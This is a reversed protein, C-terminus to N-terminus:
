FEVKISGLFTRPSGVDIRNRGFGNSTPFYNKDLLNDVNLQTTIRSKGVKFEYGAMLNVLTYGPLQFNNESNGEQQSKAVLGAGLKLGQVPGSQFQYTNWISGGHEPVNALRNGTNGSTVRIVKGNLDFVRGTDATIESDIFSYAGIVNWGPLIEGAIDLEFGENMAEGALEFEDNSAGAFDRTVTAVNQKTLRYWALTGTLRGGLLETKIGAEWQQATEPGLAAGGIGSQFANPVGFNQVYNGYLSIEKIPQWLLGVRPNIDDDKRRFNGGFNNTSLFRANDYRFGALLHLDYPLKVQDQLYIGYWEESSEYLFDDAPNKIPLSGHVPKNIDIGPFDFNDIILGTNHFLYYDGGLLLTHELGFTDFHGTLDLNNSYNQTKNDRFGAYFRPFINSDLPVGDAGIVVDDDEHTFNANFKHAIKWQDNFAHSWNFGLMVDDSESFAFPEGLNRERPIDVPRNGKAPIGFDTTENAHKYEMEFTALTRDSINWKIVPAIFIRDNDVFERFSGKDEYALNFRYLLEKDDTIPGTTDLTTRFQSFSGFQQQLSHYYQELPKKTVLNVMGGPQLRGFLIAAPGKLLEIRELNATERDGAQTLASQNRVGDRYYEFTQFGRINFSEASEAQQKYIGSTNQLAQEIRTTQQDKLVQQPVVQINVPTEMIPTDTKTATTANPRNYDTNRPDTTWSPDSYPNDSDAEVTVKPMTEGGTSEPTSTEAVKMLGGQEELTVTGNATERAAVGTGVLIKQLAAQPTYDGDVGNSKLGSTQAAPYSLQVNAAEAYDNLAGSLNQPPIHFTQASVEVITFPGSLIALIAFSLPSRVTNNFAKVGKNSTIKIKTLTKERTSIKM